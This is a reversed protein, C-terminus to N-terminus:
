LTAWAPEMGAFAPDVGYAVRRGDPAFLLARAPDHGLALSQGIQIGAQTGPELRAILMEGAGGTHRAHLLMGDGLFELHEAVVPLGAASPRLVEPRLALKLAGHCGPARLGTARPGIRVMGAEDAQAHLINIRPSGIFSAVRLDSPDEYIAEPPAIQLIEGAMMVAVRDAMTLAEVQDHTVYLTAAGARRHIEVIERRTQVRLAADLNSLPEDMLFAAPRRIIARALAARQRQGGSLQGPRRDLLPMLGLPCAAREVEAAIAAHARHAAPLLRALGPVRHLAPGRMLLPVAINERVTLHPYLAYNQFVMAVDREAARLRTVDRGGISVSGADATEIGAIVRMLTTKGCGSPGVLAVFEGSAIDLTVGALATTAGFHRTVGAVAIGGGVTV